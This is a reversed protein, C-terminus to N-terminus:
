CHAGVQQMFMYAIAGGLPAVTDGDQSVVELRMAVHELGRVTGSRHEGDREMTLTRRQDVMHPVRLRKLDHADPVDEEPALETLARHPVAQGVLLIRRVVQWEAHHQLPLSGSRPVEHRSRAIRPLKGLSRLGESWKSGPATGFYFPAQGSRRTGLHAAASSRHPLAAPIAAWPNRLIAHQRACSRLGQTM